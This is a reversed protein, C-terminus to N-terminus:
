SDILLPSNNGTFFRLTLKRPSYKSKKIQRTKASLEYLTEKKPFFFFFINLESPVLYGLRALYM